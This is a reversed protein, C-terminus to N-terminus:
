SDKFLSNQFICVKAQHVQKRHHGYTIALISKGVGAMGAICILKHNPIEAFIENEKDRKYLKSASPCPPLNSAFGIESFGPKHQKEISEKIEAIGSKIETTDSKKSIFDIVSKDPKNVITDLISRISRIDEKIDSTDEPEYQKTIEVTDSKIIKLIQSTDSDMQSAKSDLRKIRESQQDFEKSMDVQLMLNRSEEHKKMEEILEIFSDNQSQGAGTSIFDKLEDGLSRIVSNTSASLSTELKSISMQLEEKQEALLKIVDSKSIQSNIEATDSQNKNVISKDETKFEENKEALSKIQDSENMEEDVEDMHFFDVLSEIGSEVSDSRIVKMKNILQIFDKQSQGEGTSIFGKLKDGFFRTSSNTSASLSTILKQLEEKQELFLTIVDNKLNNIESNDKNLEAEIKDLYGQCLSSDFDCLQRIIEQITVVAVSFEVDKMEFALMNVFKVNRIQKLQKCYDYKNRDYRFKSIKHLENIVNHILAFSKTIDFSDLSKPINGFCGKKLRHFMEESVISRDKILQYVDGFGNYDLYYRIHARIVKTGIDLIFSCM